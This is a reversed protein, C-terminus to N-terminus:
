VRRVWAGDIIPDALHRRQIVTLMSDTITTGRTLLKIGSSTLLDAALVMGVRLQEVSVQTRTARWEEIPRDLVVSELHVLALPDYHTGAYAQLSAIVDAPPQSPTTGDGDVLQLFDLCVRLVRARLPIQGSVFHNPSGTGDWHEYIGGIIETVGKLREVSELLSTAVLAHHWGPQAPGDARRDVVRGIEHLQAALELDPLLSPPIDFRAAVQRVLATLRKGRDAAGPLGLDLLHLLLALLQEFSRGLEGHLGEMEQKDNRLEDQLRKLRLSARVRAILEPVEIPKTLYDDVGSNLGEVKLRTDSFGSLVVFLCGALSPEERVRRCFEFGNMEPMMYDSVILDPRIERARELGEVGNTATAVRLAPEHELVARFHALTTPDDDVLLVTSIQTSM